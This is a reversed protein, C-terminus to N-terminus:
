WCGVNSKTASAVTVVYVSGARQLSKSVILGVASRHRESLNEAGELTV